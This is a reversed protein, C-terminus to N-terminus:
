FGYVLGVELRGSFEVSGGCEFVVESWRLCRRWGM